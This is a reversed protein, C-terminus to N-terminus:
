KVHAQKSTSDEEFENRVKEGSRQDEIESSILKLASNVTFLKDTVTPKVSIVVLMRLFIRTAENRRPQRSFVTHSPRLPRM